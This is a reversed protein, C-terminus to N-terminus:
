YGVFRPLFSAFFLSLFSVSILKSACARGVFEEQEEKLSNRAWIQAAPLLHNDIADNLVEVRIENWAEAM